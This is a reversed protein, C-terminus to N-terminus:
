TVSSVPFGTSLADTTKLSGSSPGVPVNEEPFLVSTTAVPASPRALTQPM